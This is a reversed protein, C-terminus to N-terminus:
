HIDFTSDNTNDIFFKTLIFSILLTLILKLIQKLISPGYHCLPLQSLSQTDVSAKVGLQYIRLPAFKVPACPHNLCQAVFLFTAPEIGLPTM